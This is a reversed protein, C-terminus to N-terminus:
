RTPRLGRGDRRFPDPDRSSQRAGNRQRDPLEPSRRPGRLRLTLPLARTPSPLPRAGDRASSIASWARAQEYGIRTLNHNEFPRGLVSVRVECSAGTLGGHLPNETNRGETDSQTRQNRQSRDCFSVSGCSDSSRGVNRGASSSTGITPQCLNKFGAWRM